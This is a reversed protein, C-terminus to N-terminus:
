NGGNTKQGSRYFGYLALGTATLEKVWQPFHGYVGTVFDHFAPVQFYATSLFLFIAAVTHTSIKYKALWAKTTETM